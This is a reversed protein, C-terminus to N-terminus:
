LKCNAVMFSSHQRLISLVKMKTNTSILFKAGFMRKHPINKKRSFCNNPPFPFFLSSPGGAKSVWDFYNLFGTTFERRTKQKLHTQQKEVRKRENSFERNCGHCTVQCDKILVLSVLRDDVLMNAFMDM